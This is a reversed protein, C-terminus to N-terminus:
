TKMAAGERNDAANPTAANRGPILDADYHRWCRDTALFGVVGCKCIQGRVDRVLAECTPRIHNTM